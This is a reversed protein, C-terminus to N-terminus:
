KAHVIDVTWVGTANPTFAVKYLGSGVETITPNMSQDVGDKYVTQTGFDGDTEGAVASGSSDFVWMPLTLSEDVGVNLALAPLALATFLATLYKKM